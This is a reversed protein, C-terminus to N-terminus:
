EKIKRPQTLEWSTPKNLDNANARMTGLKIESATPTSLEM